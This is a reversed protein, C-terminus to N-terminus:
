SMAKCSGEVWCELSCSQGLLVGACFFGSTMLSHQPRAGHVYMMVAFRASTTRVGGSGAWGGWLLSPGGGSEGGVGRM